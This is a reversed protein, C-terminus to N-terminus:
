PYNFELIVRSGEGPETECKLEANLKAAREAMIQLGVHEGLQVSSSLKQENYGVGDDEIVIRCFGERNRLLVRVNNARAHKKTNNLAEQIIRIVETRMDPLLEDDQWENQFFVSLNTDRECREILKAVSSPIDQLQYPARFQGILSRLEQVAEEVQEELKEMEEWTVQEDGQHLTEDLVRVQIRLGSLTQALSDHLENAFRARAEIMYMRESENDLRFQEVMVGLHQGISSYLRRNEPNVAEEDDFFLQLTGLYTDVYQIPIKVSYMSNSSGSSLLNASAFKDYIAETKQISVERHNQMGNKFSDIETIYPSDACLGHSHVLELQGQVLIRILSAKAKFVERFRDMFHSFLEEVTDFHTSSSVVEYLLELSLTKQELRRTQESVQDKLGQQMELMRKSLHNIQEILDIFDGSGPEAIQAGVNGGSVETVWDYVQRIPHILITRIMVMSRIIFIMAGAAYIWDPISFGLLDFRVLLTQVFWVCLLFIAGFLPFMVERCILGFGLRFWRTQPTVLCEPEFSGGLKSDVSNLGM